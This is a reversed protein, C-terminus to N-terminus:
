DVYSVSFSFKRPVKGRSGMPPSVAGGFGGATLNGGGQSTRRESRECEENHKAEVM